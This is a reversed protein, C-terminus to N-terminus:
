GYSFFSMYCLSTSCIKFSERIMKKFCFRGQSIGLMKQPFCMKGGFVIIWFFFVLVNEWERFKGIRGNGGGSLAIKSWGGAGM